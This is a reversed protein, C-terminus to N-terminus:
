WANWLNSNDLRFNTPRSRLQRCRMASSPASHSCLPRPSYFADSGGVLREPYLPLWTLEFRTVILRAHTLFLARNCGMRM